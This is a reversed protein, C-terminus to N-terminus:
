APGQPRASRSPRPGTKPDKHEVGLYEVPLGTCARPEPKPQAAQEADVPGALPIRATWGTLRERLTLRRSQLHRALREAQARATRAESHCADRDKIAEAAQHLLEQNKATLDFVEESLREQVCVMKDSLGAVAKFAPSWAPDAAPQAGGPHLCVDEISALETRLTAIADTDAAHRDEFVKEGSKQAALQAELAACDEQLKRLAALTPRVRTTRDVTNRRRAIEAASLVQTSPIQAEGTRLTKLKPKKPM